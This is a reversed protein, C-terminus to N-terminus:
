KRNQRTKRKNSRKRRTGGYTSSRGSRLKPVISIQTPYDKLQKYRDMVQGGSIFIFDPFTNELEALMMNSDLVQKMIRGDILTFTYEVPVEDQFFLERQITPPESINININRNRNNRRPKQPAGPPPM